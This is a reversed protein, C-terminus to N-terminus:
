LVLLQSGTISVSWSSTRTWSFTLKIIQQLESFSHEETYGYWSRYIRGKRQSNLVVAAIDNVHLRRSIISFKIWHYRYVKPTYVNLFLCDESGRSGMLSMEGPMQQICFDGPTDANRVGDWNQLPRALQM